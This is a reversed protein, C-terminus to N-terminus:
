SSAKKEYDACIKKRLEGLKTFDIDDFQTSAPSRNWSESMRACHSAFADGVEQHGSGM